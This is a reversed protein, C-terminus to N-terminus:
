HVSKRYESPLMGVEEKFVKSMYKSDSYGALEAIQNLKFPTELLLKKVKEIRYKRVTESFTMGTEKKFQTSLYEESVFLKGAIEELTVGQDYYQRILQQAKQVMESTHEEPQKSRAAKHITQVIQEMIKQIEKWCVATSIQNLKEQIELEEEDLKLEGSRVLVWCLRILGKKIESPECINTRYYDYFQKWCAKLQGMDKIMLAKKEQEELEVPYRELGSQIQEKKSEVEEERILTGDEFLLAWELQAQVNKLDASIYLIQECQKWMGVLPIDMRNYIFPYVQKAIYSYLSTNQSNKYFVVVLSNWMEMEQLYVCYSVQQRIGHEVMFKLREIQQEYADGLWILMVEASDNVTFGYKEKTMAHFTEDTQLQGNICSNFIYELSFARDQNQIKVLDAEVQQLAHKLEVINIPKLLYNEIGLEIAQKAYDFDSYASLVLVKCNNQEQRLKALMELGSMYPMRIDMIVLDPKETQILKLGQEGDEATGVVEYSTNIKNLIKAMGERIPAEDEVVVIRM